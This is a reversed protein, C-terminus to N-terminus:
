TDLRIDDTSLRALLNPELKVGGDPIDFQEVLSGLTVTKALDVAPDVIIDFVLDLHIPPPVSRLTGGLGHEDPRIQRRPIVHQRALDDLLSAIRTTSM